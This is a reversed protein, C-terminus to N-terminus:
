DVDSELKAIVVNEIKDLVDILAVQKSEKVGNPLHVRDIAKRKLSHWIEINAIGRGNDRNTGYKEGKPWYSL